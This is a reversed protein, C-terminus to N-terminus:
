TKASPSTSYIWYRVYRFKWLAKEESRPLSSRAITSTVVPFDMSIVFPFVRHHIIDSQCDEAYHEEEYAVQLNSIVAPSCGCLRTNFFTVLRIIHLAVLPSKAFCFAINFVESTLNKRRFTLLHEWLLPPILYQFCNFIIHTQLTQFDPLKVCRQCPM